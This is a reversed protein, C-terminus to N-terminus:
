SAASVRIGAAAAVRQAEAQPDEGEEVSVMWREFRGTALEVQVAPRNGHLLVFDYGTAHRRTGLMVIRPIFIGAMRWGRLELWSHKPVGVSRISTLPARIDGHFGAVKERRTLRLVLDSGDVELRGM